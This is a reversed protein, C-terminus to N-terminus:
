QVFFADICFYTPPVTIGYSNSRTSSMQFYIMDVEGLEALDVPIWTTLINQGKALKITISNTKMGKRAGIIKLECEDNDTFPTDYMETGNLMSYYAWTTNTVLIGMPVFTAHDARTICCSPNEPVRDTTEDIYEMWAGVLYPTDNYVGGAAISSWQHEVWSSTTEYDATDESKSPAFGYYYPYEGDEGYHSFIYDGYVLPRDGAPTYVNEWIGESNFKYDQNIFTVVGHYNNDDDSCSSLLMATAALAFSFFRTLKM